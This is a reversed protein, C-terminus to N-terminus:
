RSRRSSRERASWRREAAPLGALESSCAADARRAVPPRRARARPLRRDVRRAGRADSAGGRAAAGPARAAPLARAAGRQLHGASPQPETWADPDDDFPAEGTAVEFLVAGLGWVDAAPGLVGGRAQEPSLYHWTGIGAPAEGPPRALSLDILKVRGADAILELAEPRPAPPRQAHLYAAGLRAAPRSPRDGGADPPPGDAILVSLTAGPLTELVVM